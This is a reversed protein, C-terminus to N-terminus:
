HELSKSIDSRRMEKVRLEVVELFELGRMRWIRITISGKVAAKGFGCSLLRNFENARGATDMAGPAESCANM